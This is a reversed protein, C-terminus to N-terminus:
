DHSGICNCVHVSGVDRMGFPVVCICMCLATLVKLLHDVRALLQTNVSLRCYMKDGPKAVLRQAFERQFMLIACRCYVINTSCAILIQGGDIKPHIISCHFISPM